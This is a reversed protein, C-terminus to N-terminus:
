RGVTFSGSGILAGFRGASRTGFGPWVYWRYRGPKLQFHRHDFSWHQPLQFRAHAPWASLVKGGRYLQVNYYSAGNVPTWQLLPASSVHAGRAPAVLHPGPTVDISHVSTLGAQDVATLTYHYRVGNLVRTDRFSTGHGRYVVSHSAGNLGPSRTVVLSSLPVEPHWRLSVSGDGADAAVRVPPPASDYRLPITVTSVNGARDRCTGTVSGTPTNPGSYTVTSCRAIGSLADKGRFSFRVPHNYWGNHDPRRSRIVATIKPPTADYRLRLNTAATKGANDTCTGAITTDRVDPGSYTAAPTCFAIGSFASGGFEISVPHNYWGNADPPRTAAATAAPNSM